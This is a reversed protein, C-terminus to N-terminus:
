LGGLPDWALLIMYAPKTEQKRTDVDIEYYRHLDPGILVPNVGFREVAMQVWTEDKFISGWLNAHAEQNSNLKFHFYKATHFTSLSPLYSIINDWLEQPLIM